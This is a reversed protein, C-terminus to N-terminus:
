IFDPLQVAKTTTDSHFVVSKIMTFQSLNDLNLLMTVEREREGGM